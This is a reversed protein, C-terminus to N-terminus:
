KARKKRKLGKRREKSERKCWMFNMLLTWDLCIIGVVVGILVSIGVVGIGVASPICDTETFRFAPGSLLEERRQLITMKRSDYDSVVHICKSRPHLKIAWKCCSVNHHMTNRILTGSRGVRSQYLTIHFNPSPTPHPDHFPLPPASSHTPFFLTEKLRTANGHCATVLYNFGDDFLDQKFCKM